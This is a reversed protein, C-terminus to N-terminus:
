LRRCRRPITMSSRRATSCFRQWRKPLFIRKVVFSVFLVFNPRIQKNESVKTDKTFKTTLFFKRFPVGHVEIQGFFYLDQAVRHASENILFQDRQLAFVAVIAFTRHRIMQELRQLFFGFRHPQPHEVHRRFVAAGAKAEQRAADNV